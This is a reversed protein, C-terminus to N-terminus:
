VKSLVASCIICYGFVCLIFTYLNFSIGAPDGKKTGEHVSQIIKIQGM